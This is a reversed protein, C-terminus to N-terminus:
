FTTFHYKTLTDYQTGAPLAPRQFGPENIANPFHESSVGVDRSILEMERFDFVINKVPAIEGTPILDRNIPACAEAHIRLRNGAISGTETGNLNWYAHNTMNM